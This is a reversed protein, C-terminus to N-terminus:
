SAVKTRVAPPLDRLLEAIRMAVDDPRALTAPDAEPIAAAHLPTDMDGPDLSVVRVGTGELEAAWVRALQDLGAKSAGYAGWTPYGEVAADSSVFVVTGHGRLIMPGVLAKTLRFPGALNVQLVEDFTDPETDAVLRLPTDGLTSACHVVLDVHGALAHAEGAVRTASDRAGVDAAVAHATGGNARIEDTLAVLADARRAVAVITTGEHALRLALARGLGSSAGTILATSM